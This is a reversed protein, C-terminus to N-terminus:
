FKVRVLQSADIVSALLPVVEDARLPKGFLFGQVLNIGVASMFALQAETEVGLGVVSLDLAHGIAVAARVSARAKVDTPANNVLSRDLKITKLYGSALAQLSSNGCGFHDVTIGFGAEHLASTVNGGGGLDRALARESIELAIYDPSLGAESCAETLRETLGGRSYEQMSLNLSLRVDRFGQARWLGLQATAQRLVWHGIHEIVGIRGAVEVIEAMSRAQRLSEPWHLLAELIPATKSAIDFVPQFRLEFEGRKVAAALESALDQRQLPALRATGSHFRFSSSESHRADEMATEANNMLSEADSGDQPFLSLGAHALVTVQGISIDIPKTLITILRMVVAEADEGAEIQPLVVIFQRYAGRAIISVRELEEHEYENSGRLNSELRRALQSFFEQEQRYTLQALRGDRSTIQICIVAARGEQRARVQLVRGLERAVYVRNPLGTESDRFALAKLRQYKRRHASLDSAVLLIKDRGQPVFTVEITASENVLEFQETTSERAMIVRKLRARIQQAVPAPWFDSIVSGDGDAAPAGQLLSQVQGATNVVMVTTIRARGSVTLETQSTEEM